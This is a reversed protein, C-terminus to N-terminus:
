RGALSAIYLALMLWCAGFGILVGVVMGLVFERSRSRRLRPDAGPKRKALANGPYPDPGRSIAKRGPGVAWQMKDGAEHWPCPNPWATAGAQCCIQSM